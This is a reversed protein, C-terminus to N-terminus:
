RGTERTRLSRGGARLVAPHPAPRADQSARIPERVSAAVGLAALVLGAAIWFALHYGGTLADASPHGAATLHASRSASLTALVALGLAGGVQATTNVLGSALGADQPTASSMALGMLAPFCVGAGIGLLLMSPLVGTTYESHVPAAAFLALAAMILVLGPMITRRAGFRTVLRESYRISVVAMAVTVPLFALGIQLADYGLVRRLYLAGLFFMGFMGAVSLVQIVNALVLNRSRFIRLPVLPSRATAERGVFAALLALSVGALALTRGAGWGYDAAPKVITYVGLMLASTILVAGPVDAGEGFGIGEDRDLLRIALLATAVGIPLNVFFIWHWNISQTIVGGALLGVAGGASAVFAYVGIAKAQERPQPFMTVIMGLIVASTMAGGAGQVFRAGVLLEQSQAVGCVLSAATFLGIGALFVSRRGVLDGLRGALLLLGGFAILYANVVWALSSTSFRLDDQISPLAVNVVTVDLVIMLMGACLVYLAIWRSRDETSTMM